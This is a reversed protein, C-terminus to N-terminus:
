QRGGRGYGKQRRALDRNVEAFDVRLGAPFGEAIAVLGPGHSEGATLYRLSTM